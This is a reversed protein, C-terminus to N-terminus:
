KKDKAAAKRKFEDKKGKNDITAFTTDNLTTITMSETVKDKGFNLTITLTKGELKYTGDIQDIKGGKELAKVILKGDATFEVTSGPPPATEAKVVEWVGVLKAKDVGGKDGAGSSGVLALSLCCVVATWVMRM